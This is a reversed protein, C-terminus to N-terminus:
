SDEARDRIARRADGGCGGAHRDKGDRHGLRARVGGRHGGCGAAPDASVGARLQRLVVGEADGREREELREGVCLLPTLGRAFPRASKARCTARRDRRLRAAAGFARGLVCRPGPTARWRAGLDRRYVRGNDERPHEAGRRPHGIARAAANSSPPWRSRPPFIMVTRDTTRRTTRCPVDRMFARADTPGHNMKWNAAFIPRQMPTVPRRPRRRRAADQRRPIRAIRRRRHFCPEDAVALGAEAVAAASDGGGSSPRRAASRHRRGHRTRDGRTGADFPPTEFVGMPGNWLVTKATAIARGYSAITDPGIDFMAEAAPIADRKVAHAQDGSRRAVAGGHRRAAADPAHGARELLTKAMDVRDPEVLSKGTELGMAKFFTCAMAGGILLGDVKPFCRRSSTSRARSRRAASSPSSRDSRHRRARRRPVALEKEMLLGAVAPKLFRPLAQRPHTRAIRRRRVRRERLLRRADAFQRPWRKTTRRRAPTPLAHEGPALIEGDNLTRTAAVAAADSRPRRARVHRSARDATRGSAERGTGALVEPGAGGKPRGLHSLLAGRAGRARLLYEITPLAARIRTDDTVSGRARRAARQLGRARARARGRM